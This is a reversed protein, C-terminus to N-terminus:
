KPKVESLTYDAGMGMKKASGDLAKQIDALKVTADKKVTFQVSTTKQDVAIAELEQFNALTKQILPGCGGCVIAKVKATYQGAKLVDTSQAAALGTLILASLVLAAMVISSRRNM